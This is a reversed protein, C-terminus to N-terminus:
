FSHIILKRTNNSLTPLTDSLEEYVKWKRKLLLFCNYYSSQGVANYYDITANNLHEPFFVNCFFIWGGINDFTLFDQKFKAEAYILTISENSYDFSSKKFRDLIGVIYARTDRSCELTALADSLLDNFSKNLTEM